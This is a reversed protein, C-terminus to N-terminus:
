SDLGNICANFKIVQMNYDEIQSKLKQLLSNYSSALSNYDNIQENTTKGGYVGGSDINNKQTDLEKQYNDIKKQNLSIATDLVKDISPCLSKPTGFHQVAMWVNRGNYKGQGVAIGIETYKSNLINARHGPSDMWAKVLDYNDKFNGLALNEGIVIYEYGVQNGLDGVGKGGPSNHEFYQKEFMDKVKIEASTNLKKNLSLPPLDSTDKRFVNTSNLIGGVTLSQNNITGTILPDIVRLPEPENVIKKIIDIKSQPEPNLDFVPSTDSKLDVNNEDIFSLTHVYLDKIEVRYSYFLMSVLVIIIINSLTRM